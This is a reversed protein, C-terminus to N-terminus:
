CSSECRFAATVTRSRRSTSARSSRRRCSCRRRAGTRSRRSSPGSPSRPRASVSTAASWGTWRSARVGHGGEGRRHRAFQDPTETYPFAAELERQWPTDPPFAHGAVSARVRYLEVLEQAIESAAARARARTRQWDAGGMKSLTPIEGGAYPTVAEIQDVPLYLRDSGRYELVLYDRTAGGFTRTAVGGYRAVGHQRHVVYSGPALDDFFGDTPRARPRPRRHPTRRGTIDSEALVALAPVDLVFGASLPASVITIGPRGDAQEAVSAQVGEGALVDALRAAALDSSTCLVVAVGQSSLGLLQEAMRGADGAVPPLGHSAVAPRRAGRGGPADRASRGPVRRPASRVRRAAAAARRAGATRGLDHGADRHAGGEEDHVEVARDRLRRPESLVVQASDALLDLLLTEDEVLWPLWAEMGDFVEGSALREWQGRSFTGSNALQEARARMGATLVMERCGFIVAEDLDVVSRQDGVDFTTLRDVEDGFLDIRVPSDATSPFVDVIGGRVAVEGRHEVQHERRYGREVLNRLLESQELRAGRRVVVPEAADRWPGLRQLLARVPAVM